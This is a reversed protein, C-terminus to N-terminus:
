TAPTQLKGLEPSRARPRDLAELFLRCPDKPPVDPPNAVVARLTEAVSRAHELERQQQPTHKIGDPPELDAIAHELDALADALKGQASRACARGVHAWGFDPQAELGVTFTAEADAYRGLRVLTRGLHYRYAMEEWGRPRRALEDLTGLARLHDGMLSYTAAIKISPWFWEDRREDRLRRYIALAEDYAGLSQLIDAEKDLPDLSAPELAQWARFDKMAALLARDSETTPDNRRDEVLRQQAEGRSRLALIRAPDSLADGALAQSLLRIAPELRQTELYAIGRSLALEVTRTPRDPRAFPFRLPGEMGAVSLDDHEISRLMAIPRGTQTLAGDALEYRVTASLGDREATEILEVLDEPDPVAPMDAVLAIDARHLDIWLTRGKREHRAVPARVVFRTGLQTAPGPPSERRADYVRAFSGPEVPALETDGAVLAALGFAAKPDRAPDFDVHRRGHNFQVGKVLVAVRPTRAATGSRDSPVSLQVYGTRGLAVASAEVGGAADTDGNADSVRVSWALTKAKANYTPTKLWSTAEIDPRGFRRRMSNEAETRARITALMAAPDWSHAESVDVHGSDHYEVVVYGNVGFVLGVFSRGFENGFLRMLADAEPRPIFMHADPLSLLAEDWIPILAPGHQAARDAPGFAPHVNATEEGPRAAPAPTAALALLTATMLAATARWGRATPKM